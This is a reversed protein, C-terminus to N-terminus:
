ILQTNRRQSSDFLNYLNGSPLKHRKHLHGEVLPLQGDEGVVELLVVLPLLGVQEVAVGAARLASSRTGITTLM